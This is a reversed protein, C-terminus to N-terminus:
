LTRVSPMAPGPGLMLDTLAWVLADLRDPSAEGPAGTFACLQDELMPFAGAHRVRGREYLAAVPEARVRKGRSARVPRVPVSPDAMRIVAEVMEGGQNVEAVIRDAEHARYLRVAREAWGAPSLGGMSADELVYAIGDEGVGAVVLGCEDAGAGSTAPPDVAVVVRALPPAARVRAAEIAARDWLAGTRSEVLEGMLEQRGLATGEFARAIESLFADALAGKNDYTTSRTVATTPAALLERILRSPAPTTTVVQRPRAGLRLGLQLNSWAAEARQWKCVEDAWAAEHQHGRLGDPDEASFVHAVAGSPWVLRHRSPEYAPREWPAGVARLGSEGEIMVERADEYTEGVLAIRSAGARVQAAIWEAGTRTKGAGRGGM